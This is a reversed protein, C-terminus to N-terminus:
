RIGGRRPVGRTMGGGRPRGATNDLLEAHRAHPAENDDIRVRALRFADDGKRVDRRENKQLTKPEWNAQPAATFDRIAPRDKILYSNM